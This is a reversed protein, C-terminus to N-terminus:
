SRRGLGFGLGFGARVFGSNRRGRRGRRFLNGFGERLQLNEFAQAAAAHTHDILRPLWQEVAEDGELNERRFLLLVRLEGLTEHPLRLGKGPEIMRVDNGDIVKAFGVAEIVQQHLEGIAHAEPLQQLGPLQRRFLRHSDDRPDALGKLVGMFLADDM